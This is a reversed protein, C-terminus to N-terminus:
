TQGTMKIRQINPAEIGVHFVDLGLFRRQKKFSQAMFFERNPETPANITGNYGSEGKRREGTGRGNGSQQSFDLQNVMWLILRRPGPQNVM